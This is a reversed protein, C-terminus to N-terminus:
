TRRPLQNKWFEGLWQSKDTLHCVYLLLMAHLIGDFSYILRYCPILTM